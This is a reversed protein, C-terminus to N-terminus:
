VSENMFIRIVNRIKKKKLIILKKLLNFHHMMAIVFYAQIYENVNMCM